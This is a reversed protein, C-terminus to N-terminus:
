LDMWIELPNRSWIHSLQSDDVRLIMETQAEATKTASQKGLKTEYKKKINADTKGETDVLIEIVNTWLGKCVLEAEICLAWESYNTDDLCTFCSTSDYNSIIYITYFDFNFLIHPESSLCM